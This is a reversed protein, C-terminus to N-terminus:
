PSIDGEVGGGIRELGRWLCNAAERYMAVPTARAMTTALRNVGNIFRAFDVIVAVAVLSVGVTAAISM